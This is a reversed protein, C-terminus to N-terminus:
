WEYSGPEEVMQARMDVADMFRDFDGRPGAQRLDRADDGDTPELLSTDYRTGIRPYAGFHDWIQSCGFNVAHAFDDPVGPKKIIVVVVDNSRTRRPDDRLALLDRQFANADEPPFEPLRIRCAKIANVIVSLSRSKDMTYYYLDSERVGTHPRMVDGASPGTYNIPVVTLGPVSMLGEHKMIELRVFGAGGNDYAFADADVGRIWRLVERAEDTPSMGKPLRAGHIVDIVDSDARLGLVALATYSDSIAGGGSWDVGVTVYRYEGRINAADSPEDVEPLDHVARQLDSMTLPSTSADYPWGFVENYLTMTDYDKGKALLRRWKNEYSVHLPHVTQSLHYGPFSLARDPIAHVYGGDRPSVPKGCGACVPGHDGIMKLLDQEPNPINYRGCHTCRIVWEAQSSRNWLLALTTDTTKPTGLYVSFGWFLSASMTENVVDLFEYEIDQCNHSCIGNALVYSHTGVVEVDYM